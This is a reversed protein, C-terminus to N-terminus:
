QTVLEYAVMINTSSNSSVNAQLIDGEELYFSTDKAMLVLTSNAPVAINGGLFYTTANRVVTVNANTTAGTYNTVSVSEVKIVTNSGAGNALVTSTSTLMAFFATKGNVTTSTLLNPAAM